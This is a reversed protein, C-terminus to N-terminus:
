LWKPDGSGFFIRKPFAVEQADAMALDLGVNHSSGTKNKYIQIQYVIAKSSV